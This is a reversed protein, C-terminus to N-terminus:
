AKAPNDYKVLRRDPTFALVHSGILEWVASHYADSFNALNPGVPEPSAEVEAILAAKTENVLDQFSKVETCM